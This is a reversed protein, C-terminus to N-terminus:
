VQIPTLVAKAAMISSINTRPMRGRRSSTTTPAARSRTVPMSAPSCATPSPSPASRASMSDALDAGEGDGVAQEGADIGTVLDLAAGVVVDDLLPRIGLVFIDEM